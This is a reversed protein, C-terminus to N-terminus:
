LTVGPDIIQVQLVTASKALGLLVVNDGSLVDALPSIGGATPSLYYATGATLVSGLTLDGRTLIAVPQEDAATNLAIGVPSKAAATASDADALKYRNDTSDLYVAQGPTIAEGAYGRAITAGSGPLVSGATITLAAM